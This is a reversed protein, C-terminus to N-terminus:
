NETHRRAARRADIWAQQLQSARQDTIDLLKELQSTNLSTNLHLRVRQIFRDSNSLLYHFSEIEPVTSFTNLLEPRKLTRDAISSTDSGHEFRNYQAEIDEIDEVSLIVSSRLSDIEASNPRHDIMYYIAIFLIISLFIGPTKLLWILVCCSLAIFLYPWWPLRSSSELGAFEPM